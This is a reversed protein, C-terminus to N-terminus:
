PRVELRRAPVGAWTEGPPVDTLVAAGMGVTAGSGVTVGQRVSANMGLYAAAGVVVGGGLSVGSAFTVFDGIRCDHTITVGPMAVVHRGIVADATITVGGFFISGAGIECAAPNRVSPDIVSAFRSADVGRSVLARAVQSRPASAAVAVVIDCDDFDVIASMPGRVAVGGLAAPLENFRDDLIGVPDRGAERLLPIIERVFRGGGILVIPANM